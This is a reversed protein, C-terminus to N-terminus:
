SKIEMQFGCSDMLYFFVGGIAGGAPILILPVLMWAELLDEKTLIIFLLLTFPAIAGLLAPLGLSKISNSQLFANSNNM